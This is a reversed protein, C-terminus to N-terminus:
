RNVNCHDVARAVIELRIFRRAVIRDVNDRVTIMEPDGPSRAVQTTFANSPTDGAPSYVSGLDWAALDGSVLVRFTLDSADASRPFTLSLFEGAALSPLLPPSPELPDFGFAREMLNSFGDRDPDAGDGAIVSINAYLGFKRFRWDDGPKDRHEGDRQAHRRPRPLRCRRAGDRDRKGPRRRDHGPDAHDRDVHVTPEASDDGVDAGVSLRQWASCKRRLQSRHEGGRQTRAGALTYDRGPEARGGRCARDARVGERAAGRSALRRVAGADDLFRSDRDGNVIVLSGMVNLSSVM